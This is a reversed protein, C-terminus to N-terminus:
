SKSDKSDTDAKKQLLAVIAEKVGLIAGLGRMHKPFEQSYNRWGKNVM